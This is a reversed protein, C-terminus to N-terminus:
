MFFVHYLLFLNIIVMILSFIWGGWRRINDGIESKSQDKVEIKDVRGEINMIDERLGNYKEIVEITRDLKQALNEFMRRQEQQNEHLEKNSYWEKQNLTAKMKEIDEAFPCDEKTHGSM